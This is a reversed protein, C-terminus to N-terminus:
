GLPVAEGAEDGWLEQLRRDRGCSRRYFQYRIPNKQYYDQHYEEAPYFRAAQTIEVKIPQEFREAVQNLSAEAFERQSEDHYFIGPRYQSGVDCFQRDDVLPDINPWFVALLEEYSVRAPDYRIQVAETHGTTGTVVQQYTPNEVHGGIYGSITAVVGDLKDYPPEMCWFCGGAFTAVALSPDDTTTADPQSNDQQAVVTTMVAGALTLIGLATLWRQNM